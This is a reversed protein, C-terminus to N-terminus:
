CGSPACDELAAGDEVGAGLVVEVEAVVVVVAAPPNGVTPPLGNWSDPRGESAPTPIGVMTIGSVAAAGKICFDFKGSPVTNM